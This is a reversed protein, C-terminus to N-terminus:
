DHDDSEGEEYEALLVELAQVSVPVYCCPKANALAKRLHDLAEAHTM